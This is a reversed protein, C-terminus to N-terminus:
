EVKSEEDQEEEKAEDTAIDVNEFFNYAREMERARAIDAFIDKPTYKMASVVASLHGV